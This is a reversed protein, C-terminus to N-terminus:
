DWVSCAENALNYIFGEQCYETFSFTKNVETETHPMYKNSICSAYLLSMVINYVALYWNLCLKILYVTTLVNYPFM